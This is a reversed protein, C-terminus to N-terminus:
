AGRKEVGSELGQKSPENIGFMQLYEQCHGPIDERQFKRKCVQKCLAKMHLLSWKSSPGDQSGVVNRPKEQVRLKM